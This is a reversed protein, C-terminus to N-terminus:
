EVRKVFTLRIVICTSSFSSDVVALILATSPCHMSLHSRSAM